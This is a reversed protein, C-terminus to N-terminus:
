IIFINENIHFTLYDLSITVYTVTTHQYKVEHTSRVNHTVDHQQKEDAKMM